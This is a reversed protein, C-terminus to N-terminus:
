RGASLLKGGRRTVTEQGADLLKGADYGERGCNYGADYGETVTGGAATVRVFKGMDYGERLSQKKRRSFFNVFM